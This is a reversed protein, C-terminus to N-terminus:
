DPRLNRAFLALLNDWHRETAAEDYAATDAMTFGHVAGDYQECVHRVGAEALAEDLRKQQELPMGKDRDASAVYVEASIRPALLHPSGAADTALRAGHFSAVAGVQEPRHAATRLALAGGMCYGTVGVPGDAVQEHGTLLDLYSDADSMAREPTLDAMMPRLVAFLEGRAAPDKLRSIDVLPAPGRRYLVNPVLVVYGEGAIRGAMEELRPRLGFADMYLLVGPYRGADEPAALFADATGDRTEVLLTSTRLPM